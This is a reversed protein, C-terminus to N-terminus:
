KGLIGRAGGSILLAVEAMAVMPSVNPPLAIYRPRWDPRFKQKFARLGEFNYFAGGHRFMQHGFRDWLKATRRENLGALPAVGLSFEQAGAERYHEILSLFLFEMMGSAHDPLYRMLDIAVRAGSGPAMVNAFAVIPGQSAPLDGTQATNKRIVAIPFNDLYAADFRGVSFGKERGTKGGLWADSVGRLTEILEPAHPPALMELAYGERQAKNFAARMTKFKSGSLSFEPLPIVAEEGVKHLVMGMEIWLPLRHASVEYFIPRGGAAFAAERFSWAAQTSQEADGIPDGFAVWNSRHRAYMVCAGGQASFEYSKDGSLALCAQPDDQRTVIARAKAVQDIDPAFAPKRAPKLAIYISFALLVASGALGARFARPTNAGPRFETWFADSYPTAERLFFLFSLAAIVVAAVVAFWAPSFVGETLKAHRHFERRFPLLALAGLVLVIATRYDFNNLLAAVMGGGLALLTLWFAGEIRRRLAQSLIILITGIVASAMTGGEFLIAAVLDVEDPERYLHPLASPMLSVFILFAGFGLAWLAALGPAAGGLAGVVPKMPESIGGFVKAIWGGAMRAENLAVVVFALAFPLLFYILRFLLLAAAIHEVGFQGDASVPMAAIVVTEFVGVGGPVHSAIGIMTAAAYIPLFDIFDPGGAPLLVWLALAAMTTDFLSLVIQGALVKPPPMAMEFRGIKLTSKSASLAFLGALSVLCLAVAIIRVALDSLPVLAALAAPHIAVSAVGVLSLGLGVSIAIYSSVSAMEFANLGFASYIRWRVAGGSLVSVGVTNGFGFGLFSGLAVTRAPLHKGVSALAWRDYGAMAGYGAATAAVAALLLQPDMARVQAFVGGIHVSRLEHALAWIGLCFLVLGIVIPMLTRLRGKADLAKAGGDRKPSTALQATPESQDTM